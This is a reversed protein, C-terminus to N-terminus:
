AGAPRGRGAAPGGAGPEPRRRPRRAADPEARRADGGGVAADIRALRTAGAGALRAADIRALRTADTRAAPNRRLEPKNVAVNVDSPKPASQVAPHKDEPKTKVAVAPSPPQTPVGKNKLRAEEIDALVAQPRDGFDWASYGGHLQQARFAARQAEEYHGEQMLRRADALLKVSEEKDQKQRAAAVDQRLKEPSDEFLGWVVVPLARLQAM